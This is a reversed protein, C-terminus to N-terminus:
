RKASEEKEVKKIFAVTSNARKFYKKATAMVDEKTVERLKDAHTLAYRWDGASAEAFTLEIAIRDNTRLSRLLMAEFANVVKQLDRENLPEEKLRELEDRIAEEVEEVTHPHRPMASIVYLNDELIQGPHGNYSEVAVAVQDEVVLRKYLRSTRGDTLISGIVDFVYDDFHPSSPKKFGILLFPRADWEVAVRREGKQEPESVAPLPPPSKAPLSGFYRDLMKKTKEMDIDGVIAGLANAPTYYTDFFERVKRPTVTRLDSTWGIIPKGYPSATFAAAFFEDFLTGFPSNEDLRKEEFIVDMEQYFERMVMNELRDREMAMWLELKNSPLVVFYNTSDQQTMANVTIAGNRNFIEDYENERIYKSQEDQLRDMEAGLEEILKRDGLRGKAIEAARREGIEELKAMIRKEASYNTTGIRKTGKFAMHELIHALGSSGAPEHIAGVMYRITATVTPSARRELLLFRMGNELEYEVIKSELDFAFLGGASAVVILLPIAYGLKKM